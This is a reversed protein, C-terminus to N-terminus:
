LLSTATGSGMAVALSAKDSTYRITQDPLPHPTGAHKLLHGVTELPLLKQAAANMLVDAAGRKISRTSVTKDKLIRRMIVNMQPATTRTIPCRKPLKSLRHLIRDIPDKHVLHVLLDPRFPRLRTAKTLPFLITLEHPGMPILDAPRLAAVDAWRSATKWALFFALQLPWPLAMLLQYAERKTLPRVVHTQRLGQAVRIGRVYMETDSSKLEPHMGLFTTAYTLLSSDLLNTSLWTFFRLATQPTSPLGTTATFEEWNKQLMTRRAWTSPAYAVQLRKKTLLDLQAITFANPAKRKRRIHPVQTQKMQSSLTPTTRTTHLLRAPPLSDVSSTSDSISHTDMGYSGLSLRSKPPLTTPWTIGSHTKTKGLTSRGFLPPTNPFGKTSLIVSRRSTAQTTWPSNFM